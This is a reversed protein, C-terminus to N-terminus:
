QRGRPTAIFAVEEGTDADRAVGTIVGADNIHGAVLLTGEYDPEVLTNLDTIDGDEWLVATNGGPGRSLGVVQGRDNIGLAQSTDDGELVGLDVIGGHRTWYFAHIGFADGPVGAPNGFGVVDGQDNLDMPTHWAKGGLNGIDIATGDPEWLVAHQASFGGVANSCEGSIGVAQGRENIANGTSTSDGPLPTLERM